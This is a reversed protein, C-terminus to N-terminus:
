STCIASAFMIGLKPVSFIQIMCWFLIIHVFITSLYLFYGSFDAFALFKLVLRVLFICARWLSVSWWANPIGFARSMM